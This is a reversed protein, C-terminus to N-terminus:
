NISQPKFQELFLIAEQETLRLHKKALNILEETDVGLDYSLWDLLGILPQPEGHLADTLCSRALDLRKM